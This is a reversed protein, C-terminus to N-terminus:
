DAIDQGVIRTLERASAVSVRDPFVVLGSHAEFPDAEDNTQEEELIMRDLLPTSILQSFESRELARARTLVSIVLGILIASTFKLLVGVVVTTLTVFAYIRPVRHIRSLLRWEILNWATTMIVAYLVGYPIGQGIRSVGFALLLLILAAVIGSVPTRGGNGINNFSVVSVSGPLGGILGALINGFGHSVIERDPKHYAGTVMDTRLATVLTGVSTLIAMTFAPELLRLLLEWSVAPLRLTPLGISLHGVTPADHFWLIGAFTGVVLM